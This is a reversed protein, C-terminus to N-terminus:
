VKHLVVLVSKVNKFTLFVAGGTYIPVSRRGEGDPHLM